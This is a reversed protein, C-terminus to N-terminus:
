VTAKKLKRRYLSAAIGGFAFLALALTSPEPVVAVTATVIFPTANLTGGLGGDLNQRFLQIGIDGAPGGDVFNTVTFRLRVKSAGDVNLANMDYDVGNVGDGAGVFTEYNTFAGADLAIAATILSDSEEFHSTLRATVQMNGVFTAGAVAQFEYELTGQSDDLAYYYNAFLPSDEDNFFM